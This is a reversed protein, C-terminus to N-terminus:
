LSYIIKGKKVTMKNMNKGVNYIIDSYNDTNFIAFDAQKGIEISGTIKELGIAKAANITFASLIEEMSMKMKIAALSMIMSINAIHSSGPNYDTSLAVLLDNDILNRAPAYDYNLFFSVGPLLVSVIQNKKLFDIDNDNFVELHDVSDAKHKAAIDIGGINHFQDTHLKIKLGYQTAAKFIMDTEEATFATEECFVDCYEALNQKAVVPIMKNIVLDVYEERNNKYELPLTHAGLFTSVINIDYTEKATKIAKLLKLEDNVSLGYGSKIEISTVGQSVFYDLRPKILNFIDNVTSYRVANVTSIIGGGQKAITEYDIGAIKMRFEDARSGAFATHTHCDVIGPTVVAGSLDVIKDYNSYEKVFDTIIGNETLISYGELLDIDNLESGPKCNKGSTNITVIQSPNSFLIKM